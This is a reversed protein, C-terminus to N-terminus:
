RGGPEALNTPSREWGKAVATDNDLYSVAIDLLQGSLERVLKQVRAVPERLKAFPAVAADAREPHNHFADRVHDSAQQVQAVAENLQAAGRAFNHGLNEIDDHFSVLGGM